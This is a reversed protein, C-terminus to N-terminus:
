KVEKLDMKAEIEKMSAIISDMDLRISDLYKQTTQM